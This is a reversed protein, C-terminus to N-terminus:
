YSNHEAGLRRIVTFEPLKISSKRATEQLKTELKYFQDATSVARLDSRFKIYEREPMYPRLIEISQEAWNGADRTYTIQWFTIAYSLTTFAMLPILIRFVQKRLSDLEKLLKEPNPEEQDDKKTVMNRLRSIRKLQISILAWPGFLILVVVMSFTPLSLIDTSLKGVKKHLLDVYGGWITSILRLTLNGLGTFIDRLALEWLGSGLAGLFITGLVWVAAQASRNNRIFELTKSKM